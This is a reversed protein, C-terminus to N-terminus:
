GQCPEAGQAEGPGAHTVSREVHDLQELHVKPWALQDAEARRNLTVGYLFKLSAVNLKLSPARMGTQQLHALFEKCETAGMVEPSKMHFRVFHCCCRLYHRRTGESLNKLKLDRSMRDYLAGM